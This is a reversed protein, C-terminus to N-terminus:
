ESLYCLPRGSVSTSQMLLGSFTKFPKINAKLNVSLEKACYLLGVGNLARGAEEAKVGAKWEAGEGGDGNWTGEVQQQTTELDHEIRKVGWSSYGPEETQPIEWALICSHTAMEKELAVKQGLSWFQM